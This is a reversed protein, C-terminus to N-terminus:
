GWNKWALVIGAVIAAVIALSVLLSVIVSTAFLCGFGKIAGDFVDDDDFNVANEM